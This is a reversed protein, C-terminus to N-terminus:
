TTPLKSKETNRFNNVNVLSLFKANYNDGLRTQYPYINFVTLWTSFFGGAKATDMVQDWLDDYQQQPTTNSLNDIRKIAKLADFWRQTRRTVRSDYSDADGRLANLELLDITRKAAAANTPQHTGTGGTGTVTVRVVSTTYAKTAPNYIMAKVTRAFPDYNVDKHMISEQQDRPLATVVASVKALVYTMWKYSKADHDPFVYYDRLAQQYQPETPLAPSGTLTQVEGRSPNNSKANNCPGCSLLFNDWELAQTTIVSKPLVHEVEALQAIFTECYSCFNGLFFLLVSGARKYEDGVKGSIAKKLTNEDNTRQNKAKRNIRQLETLAQATTPSKTHWKAIALTKAKGKSFTFTAVPTYRTSVGISTGAPKDVPRM